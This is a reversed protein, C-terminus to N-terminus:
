FNRIFFHHTKDFVNKVDNIYLTKGSGIYTFNSYFEKVEELSCNSSCADYNVVKGKLLCETKAPKIGFGYTM